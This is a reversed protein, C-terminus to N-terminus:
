KQGELINLQKEAERRTNEYKAEAIAQKLAPAAAAGYSNRFHYPLAFSSRENELMFPLLDKMDEPDRHWALCILAQEKADKSPSERIIRLLERKAEKSRAVGLYLALKHFATGDNLRHFHDLRAFVAQDLKAFFDANEKMDEFKEGGLWHMPHYHRFRYLTEVAGAAKKPDNDALFPTLATVFEDRRRWAADHMTAVFQAVDADPGNAKIHQLTVDILKNPLPGDAAPAAPLVVAALAVALTLPRM